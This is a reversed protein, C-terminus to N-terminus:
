SWIEAPLSALNKNLFIVSNLSWALEQLCYFFISQPEKSNKTM